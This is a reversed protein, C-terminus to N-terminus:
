KNSGCLLRSFWQASCITSLNFLKKFGLPKYSRTVLVTEAYHLATSIFQRRYVCITICPPYYIHNKTSVLAFSCERVFNLLCLVRFCHVSSVVVDVTRQRKTTSLPLVLINQNDWAFDPSSPILLFQWQWWIIRRTNKDRKDFERNNNVFAAQELPTYKNRCIMCANRQSNKIVFNRM